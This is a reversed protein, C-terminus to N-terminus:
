DEEGALLKVLRAEGRQLVYGFQSAAEEFRQVGSVKLYHQESFGKGVWIASDLSTLGRLWEDHTASSLNMADDGLVLTTGYEKAIRLLVKGFVDREEYPLSSYIGAFGPAILWNFAQDFGEGEDSLLDELKLTEAGASGFDVVSLSDAGADLYAVKNSADTCLMGELALLVKQYEDGNSSILTAANRNFDFTVVELTEKDVGVPIRKSKLMKADVNFYSATVVEPLCPVAQAGPGSFAEAQKECWQRTEIPSDALEESTLAAQFEYVGEEGRFLGRGPAQTPVLGDLRGFLEQYDTMDNVQLCITQKFNQRLRYRVDGVSAAAFIFYIGYKTGERTLAALLEEAEEYLENFAAVNNIVVVINPVPRPALKAYSQFDGGFEVFKKKRLALEDILMGLLNKVKEEDSSILVDGVHPAPSFSTLTESGFDLLYCNVEEPSHDRIFSYLLTNIFHTKGGGTSGFLVLNGDRTLSLTMAGQSQTSPDDYEGMLVELDFGKALKTEYKEILAELYIRSELPPMWLQRLVINEENATEILYNTVEDLQKTKGGALSTRQPKVQALPRGQINLLTVSDDYDREIRDSPFYPAGAWASQGMEFSENYGVQLYYRGTEVLEAADPRKLMEMSDARDQVKLCVKFRSNAWIQDDVVGSPKQTALILHVGLSRGIRAASVLQEMFEPQQTKLEAFEDSIIFLHPLPESVQGERVLSQYKYIDINSVQTQATADNFIAQRRKLESQISALSRNVSAGDLNTIIGVTHPLSAFANAMGGGKYDILVFAVEHPHYNLALSLIYTMIFESKGSGTMGAVLGHPGHAKEHLDLNSLNGTVDVGIPAELTLIPNSEKWRTLVNLHEVRGVGFMELFTLMGPLEFAAEANELKTNALKVSLMHADLQLGQDPAFGIHEGSTDSRDFLKSYNKDVELVVKCDKPLYRLEDYVALVSVQGYDKARFVTNLAECKEALDRDFAFVVYRTSSEKKVQGEDPNASPQVQELFASLQRVQDVDTAVLRFSRDETWTHPLWRVFDWQDREHPSYIFAFKVEDYSHLSALQFILSKLFSTTEFREGVIGMSFRKVLSVIVPVERVLRPSEVIDFLEDQLDDDDLTFSREPVQFNASLPWDGIGLRVDLFDDHTETREWLSRERQRIRNVCVALDVYNEHLIEAQLEKENEIKIRTKELYERYKEKRIVEDRARKRKQMRRSLIPFLVMGVMMLGSMVVMPIAASYNGTTRANMLAFMAMVGASMGMTVSPGLIMLLPTDDPKEEAPPADIKIHAEGVSRRMRPSRFFLQEPSAEEIESGDDKKKLVPASPQKLTNSVKLNGDPNNVAIFGGAIVITLDIISIVDGPKLEAFGAIRMDNVFTGNSSQNDVIALNGKKLELTAHKSSAFPSAFCLTSNETRGITLTGSEPLLYKKFTRRDQSDPKTYILAKEKQNALKVSYFRGPSVKQDSVPKNDKDLLQARRNSKLVWQGAIGEAYLIDEFGGAAIAQKIWYRGTIKEPLVCRHLGQKDILILQM